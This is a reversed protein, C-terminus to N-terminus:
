APKYGEEAVAAAVQAPTLVTEATITGSELAVAVRAAPDLAQIAGTVAKVCHGCSMGEVKLTVTM